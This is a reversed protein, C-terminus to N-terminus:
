KALERLIIRYGKDLCQRIRETSLSDGVSRDISSSMSEGIKKYTWIIGDYFGLRKKIMEPITKLRPTRQFLHEFSEIQGPIKLLEIVHKFDSESM